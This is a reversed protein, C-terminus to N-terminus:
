YFCTTLNNYPIDNENEYKLPIIIELTNNAETFSYNIGNKVLKIPYYGYVEPM